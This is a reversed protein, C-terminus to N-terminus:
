IKKALKVDIKARARAATEGRDGRRRRHEHEPRDAADLDIM